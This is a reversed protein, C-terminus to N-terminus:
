MSLDNLFRAKGNEAFIGFLTGTFTMYMVAETSLGAFSATGLNYGNAFFSYSDKTTKIELIVKDKNKFYVAKKTAEFGHVRLALEVRILNDEKKQVNIRYYYDNTYFAVVGAKGTLSEVDLTAKFVSNFDEQRFLLMTPEGLDKSIEDNGVLTISGKEKDQIYNEEHPVRLKYYPYKKIDEKFDIEKNSFELDENVDVYGNNGIIPWGDSWNVKAIFTERGLQHMNPKNAKRIGLFVAFWEGSDTEIFDAHGTAQLIYDKREAHCLIPEIRAEWPGYVSKSRMIKQNHGFSTGGEAFTLYYYGDKKFIHPAETANKSIGETLIREKELLEGTDPNIKAILLGKVDDVIGNSTYYCTGDDDFFLSPDIGNQRVKKIESWPGNIDESSVIFNWQINKNTTVVYFRGNHYRITAAYIGGVSNKANKLPLLEETNLVSTVYEWNELDKSMYIPLGPFYEFSSTVIYYTDGVKCISPDPNFGKIIPNKTLHNM